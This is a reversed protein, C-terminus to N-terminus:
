HYSLGFEVSIEYQRAMSEKVREPVRAALGAALCDIVAAGASPSLYEGIAQPAFLLVHDAFDTGPAFSIDTLLITKAGVDHALRLGEITVKSYHWVSVSFAVDGPGFSPADFQVDAWDDLRHSNIQATQLVRHLQTTLARSQATGIVICRQATLLTDLTEAFIGPDLQSFTRELNTFTQMRVRDIIRAPDDSVPGVDDDLRDLPTRLTTYEARLADRFQTHGAFGIRQAFRVVTAPDVNAWRALDGATAFLVNTPQRLVYNAVLQQKKSLVPLKAEIQAHLSPAAIEVTLSVRIGGM